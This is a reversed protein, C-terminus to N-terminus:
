KQKREGGKEFTTDLISQEEEDSNDQADCWQGIRAREAIVESEESAQRPEQGGREEGNGTNDNVPTGLRGSTPEMFHAAMPM